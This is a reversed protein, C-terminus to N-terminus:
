DTVTFTVDNGSGFKSFFTVSLTGVTVVVVTSVVALVSIEEVALTVTVVTANFAEVGNDISTGVVTVILLVANVVSFIWIVFVFTGFVIGEVIESVTALSTGTILEFMVFRTAATVVAVVEGTTVFVECAVVIELSILVDRATVVGLPPPSPTITMEPPLFWYM